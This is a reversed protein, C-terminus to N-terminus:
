RPWDKCGNYVAQGAAVGTTAGKVRLADGGRCPIQAIAHGLTKQRIGNAGVFVASLPM